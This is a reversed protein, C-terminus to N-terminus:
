GGRATRFPRPDWFCAFGDGDPDIGRRDRQPGGEALFARQAQDASGYRSCARQFRTQNFSGSRSYVPEGLGHTTGLAFAVINPSGDGGREPVATPSVVEYEERKRALREADSEISERASVADFNQEDSIEPNDASPLVSTEALAASEVGPAALPATGAAPESQEGLQAAATEVPATGAVPEPNALPRNTSLAALTEEAIAPGDPVPSPRMASLEAERRARETSYRDYDSFGVGPNSDPIEPAACAALVLAAATANLRTMM